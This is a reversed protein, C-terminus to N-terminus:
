ALVLFHPPHPFCKTKLNVSLFTIENLLLLHLDPILTSPLGVPPIQILVKFAMNFGM